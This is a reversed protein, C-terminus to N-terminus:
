TGYTGNATTQESARRNGPNGRNEVPKGTNGTNGGTGSTKKGRASSDPKGCTEYHDAADEDTIFVVLGRRNSM